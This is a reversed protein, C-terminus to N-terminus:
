NYDGVTFYIITMPQMPDIRGYFRSLDSKLEQHSNFGEMAADEDNLSGYRRNTDVRSIRATIKEHGDTIEIVNGEVNAKGLRITCKKKGIKALELDERSVKIRGRYTTNRDVIAM